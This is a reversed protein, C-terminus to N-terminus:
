GSRGARVEDALRLMGPRAALYAAVLDREWKEGAAVPLDATRVKATGALIDDLDRRVRELAPRRRGFLFAAGVAAVGAFAAALAGLRAYRGGVGAMTRQFAASSRSVAVGAACGGLPDSIRLGVGVTRADVSSWSAKSLHARWAEGEAGGREARVLPTGDCAHVVISALDPHADLYQHLLEPLNEQAEVSLGLDLGVRLIRGVDWAAVDLRQVALRKYTEEFRLLGLAGTLAVACLSVAVMATGIKAVLGFSPSSSM